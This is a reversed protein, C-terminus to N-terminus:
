RFVSFCPIGISTAIMYLVPNESLMWEYTFLMLVMSPPVCKAPKRRANLYALERMRGALIEYKYVTETFITNDPWFQQRTGTHESVGVEKVPYLPKGIEYEQQYVKGNRYVQTVMHTSLANVCSM